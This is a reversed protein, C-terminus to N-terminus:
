RFPGANGQPKEARKVSAASEVAREYATVLDGLTVPFDVANSNTFPDVM